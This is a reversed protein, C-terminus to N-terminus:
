NQIMNSFIGAARYRAFLDVGDWNSPMKKQLGCQNLMGDEEHTIEALLLNDRLFEKLKLVNQNTVATDRWDSILMDMVVKVPIVHEIRTKTGDVIKSSRIITILGERSAPESFKRILHNVVVMCDNATHFSPYARYTAISGLIQACIGDSTLAM